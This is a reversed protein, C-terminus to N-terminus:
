LMLGFSMSSIILSFSKSVNQLDLFILVLPSRIVFMKSVYWSASFKYRSFKSFIPNLFKFTRLSFPICTLSLSNPTFNSFRVLLMNVFSPKLTSLFSLCNNFVLFSLISM